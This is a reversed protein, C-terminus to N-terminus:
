EFLNGKEKSILQNEKILEDIQKKVKSDIQNGTSHHTQTHSYIFLYISHYIKIKNIEKRELRICTLTPVNLKLRECIEDFKSGRQYM